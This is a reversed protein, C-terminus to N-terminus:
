KALLTWAASTKARIRSRCRDSQMIQPRDPKLERHRSNSSGAMHRRCVTYGREKADRVIASFPTNAAISAAACYQNFLFSLTGSFIGEIRLVRDGTDILDALTNLIPLGAGM